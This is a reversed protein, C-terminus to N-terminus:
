LSDEDRESQKRQSKEETTKKEADAMKEYMEKFMDFDVRQIPRGKMLARVYGELLQREQWEQWQQSSLQQQSSLTRALLLIEELVERDSRPAVAKASQQKAMITKVDEELQPWWQAFIKDLAPEALPKQLAKNITNVVGRFEEKSFEAAQFHALPGKLDATRMGFLIPCVRGQEFRKAIAGAEFMIWQSTLAEPTLIILGVNSQELAQVIDSYWRAGKDIDAPSFYPEVSQLVFPLWERIAEGLQKSQAGAWSIFVQM